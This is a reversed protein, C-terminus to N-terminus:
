NVFLNAHVTKHKFGTQPIRMSDLQLLGGNNSVIYSDRGQGDGYYHAYKPDYTRTLAGSLDM